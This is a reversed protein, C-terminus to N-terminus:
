PCYTSEVAYTVTHGFLYRDAIYASVTSECWQMADGQTSYGDGPANWCQQLDVQRDSEFLAESSIIKCSSYTSKNSGDSNDCATILFSLTVLLLIRM